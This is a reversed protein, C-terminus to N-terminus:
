NQLKIGHFKAMNLFTVDESGTSHDRDSKPYLHSLSLVRAIRARMAPLPFCAAHSQAEEKV